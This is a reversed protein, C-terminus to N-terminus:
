GPVLSAFVGHGGRDATDAKSSLVKGDAADVKVDFVNNDATVVEVNFYVAGREGELEAKTAKGGAQTEASGIAQSLSIKAKVLDAVADNQGHAEEKAYVLGGATAVGAAFLVASIVQKQNM